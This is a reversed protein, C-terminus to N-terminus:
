DNMSTTRSVERISLLGLKNPEVLDTKTLVVQYQVQARDLVQDIIYFYVDIISASRVSNV